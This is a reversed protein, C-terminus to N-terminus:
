KRSKSPGPIKHDISRHTVSDDRVETVLKRMDSQVRSPSTDVRDERVEKVLKPRNLSHIAEITRRM